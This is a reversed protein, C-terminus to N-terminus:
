ILNYEKLIKVAEDTITVFMWDNKDKFYVNKICDTMVEGDEFLICYQGQKNYFHISNWNPRTMYYPKYKIIQEKGEEFSLDKDIIDKWYRM